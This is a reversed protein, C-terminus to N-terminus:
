LTTNKSISAYRCSSARILYGIGGYALTSILFGLELLYHILYVKCGLDLSIKQSCVLLDNHM